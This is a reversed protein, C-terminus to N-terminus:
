SHVRIFRLRVASPRPNAGRPVTIVVLYSANKERTRRKHRAKLALRKELRIGLARLSM